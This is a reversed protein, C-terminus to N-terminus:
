GRTLRDLTDLDSPEIAGEVRCRLMGQPDILLQLPLEPESSLGLADLWGQRLAGDPLWYTSTLGTPPERSLFERLQREDDDLSVFRFEVRGAFAERWRFLVPLEEKCPVCWAAWFNVWTWRGSPHQLPDKPPEGGPDLSVRTPTTRPKFPVPKQELQGQCLPPRPKRPAAVAAAGASSPEPHPEVRASGPQTLVAQVRSKAPADAGQECALSLSAILLCRGKM